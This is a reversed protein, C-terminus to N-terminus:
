PKRGWSGTGRLLACLVKGLSPVRSHLPQSSLWGQTDEVRQRPWSQVTKEALGSPSLCPWTPLFSALVRSEGRGQACCSSLAQSM